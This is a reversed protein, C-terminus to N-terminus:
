YIRLEELGYYCIRTAHRCRSNITANHANIACSRETATEKLSLGSTVLAMTKLNYSLLALALKKTQYEYDFRVCSHSVKSQIKSFISAAGLM